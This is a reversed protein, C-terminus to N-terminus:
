AVFRRGTATISERGPLYAHRLWARADALSRAPQIRTFYIGRHPHWEAFYEPKGSTSYAAPVRRVRRAEDYWWIVEGVPGVSKRELTIKAM